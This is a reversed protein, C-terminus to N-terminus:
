RWRGCIGEAIMVRGVDDGGALRCQGVERDYSKRGSLTCTVQGTSVLQRMRRTASDGAMTGSEACDLNALRVAVGSVEITDGDRVHSVPGSLTKGSRSTTGQQRAGGWADGGRLITPKTQEQSRLDTLFTKSPDSSIM